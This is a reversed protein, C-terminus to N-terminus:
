TPSPFIGFLSICYRGVLTPMCNEHPQSGGSPGVAAPASTFARGGAVDTVFQTQNSVAGPIVTNGPAGTTAANSTAVATHTHSPIQMATLTVSETGGMQGVQYTIGSNGTGFHVPIRARLDPLAFTEQGDGGYTTGILQFLVENEAIPLLQGSCDLWGNPAFNYPFLRIEGVYPQSM